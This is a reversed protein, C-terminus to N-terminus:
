QSLAVAVILSLTPKLYRMSATYPRGDENFQGLFFMYLAGFMINTIAIAAAAV